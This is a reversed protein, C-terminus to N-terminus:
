ICKTDTLLGIFIKKILGFMKYWTRKMLYKHIDLVDNADVSIFDVSFFKVIGKIITKEMNNITFYKSISDLRLAYYKIESDEVTFQYIKTANVFM